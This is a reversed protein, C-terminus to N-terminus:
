YRKIGKEAHNWWHRADPKLFDTNEDGHSLDQIQQAKDGLFLGTRLNAARTRYVARSRGLASAERSVQRPAQVATKAAARCAVVQIKVGGSSVLAEKGRRKVQTVANATVNRPDVGASRSTRQAVERYWNCIRTM